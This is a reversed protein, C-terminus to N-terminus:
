NWAFEPPIVFLNAPASLIAREIFKEWHRYKKDSWRLEYDQLILFVDLGKLMDFRYLEGTKVVLKCDAEAKWADTVLVTGRPRLGKKRAQLLDYGNHPYKKM